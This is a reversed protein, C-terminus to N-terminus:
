SAGDGSPDADAGGDQAAGPLMISISAGATGTTIAFPDIPPTELLQADTHAETPESPLGAWDFPEQPRAAFLGM